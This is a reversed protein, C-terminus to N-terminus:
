EVKHFKRESYDVGAKLKIVLATVSLAMYVMTIGEELGVIGHYEVLSSLAFVFFVFYHAFVLYSYKRFMWFDFGAVLLLIVLSIGSSIAVDAGRNINEDYISITRMVYGVTTLVTTMASAWIVNITIHINIVAFWDTRQLTQLMEAREKVRESEALPDNDEEEADGGNGTNISKMYLKIFTERKMNTLSQYGEYCEADPCESFINKYSYVYVLNFISVLIMIIMVVIMGSGNLNEHSNSAALDVICDVFSAIFLLPFTMVAFTNSGSAVIKARKINFFYIWLAFVPLTAQWINIIITKFYMPNSGETM